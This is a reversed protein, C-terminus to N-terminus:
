NEQHEDGYNDVINMLINAAKCAEELVTEPSLGLEIAAKVEGFKGQLTRLLENVPASADYTDKAQLENEMGAAFWGVSERLFLEEASVPEKLPPATNVNINITVPGSPPPPTVSLSPPPQFVDQGQVPVVQVYGSTVPQKESM